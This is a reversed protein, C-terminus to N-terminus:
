RQCPQCCRGGGQGGSDRGRGSERSRHRGPRQDLRAVHRYRNSAQHWIRGTVNCIAGEALAQRWEAQIRPRDEPHLAELWGEAQYQPWVQGTYKEWSSQAEVVRGKADTMWWVAGTADVLRRHCEEAVQRELFEQRVSQRQTEIQELCDAHRARGRRVLVILAITLGLCLGALLWTLPLSGAEALATAESGGPMAAGVWAHSAFSTGVIGCGSGSACAPRMSEHQLSLHM